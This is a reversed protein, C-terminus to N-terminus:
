VITITTCQQNVHWLDMEQYHELTDDFTDLKLGKAVCREKAEAYRVLKVGSLPVMDRVIAFVQGTSNKQKIVFINGIYLFFLIKMGQQYMTM